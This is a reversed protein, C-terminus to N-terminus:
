RKGAAAIVNKAIPAWKETEREIFRTLEEPSMKETEIEETEFRKRVAPTDIARTIEQNMRQVISAPVGAPAALGFWTTAVLDPYGLEKLTPLQPFEALRNASSIALPVVTGARVHGLAATLTMFGLRVHGAVLDGVAQGAGKYSIHQLRVGEKQAWLEALLNGLTGPGPSVYDTAQSSGKLLAVLDRFTRVGLAPHAIVITPPGGIYAVHVFSRMPDFGANPNTAPAIVHSAVSTIVFTYGDPETKAALASGVLGGAGPKNEVFFQKGFKDSLEKGLIRALTDSGGGPPFPSIIRVPKAPWDQAAAVGAALCLAIMFPLIWRRMM